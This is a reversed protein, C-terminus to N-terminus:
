LYRNVATSNYCRNLVCHLYQFLQASEHLFFYFFLIYIYVGSFGQFVSPRGESVAKLTLCPRMGEAAARLAPAPTSHYSPAAPYPNYHLPPPNPSRSPSPPALSYTCKFSLPAAIWKEVGDGDRGCGGPGEEVSADPWLVCPQLTLSSFAPSM